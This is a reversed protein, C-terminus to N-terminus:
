VLFTMSLSDLALYYDANEKLQIPPIFATTFGHPQPNPIASSRLTIVHEM